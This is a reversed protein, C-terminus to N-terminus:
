IESVLKPSVSVHEAYQAQALKAYFYHQPGDLPMLGRRYFSTWSGRFHLERHPQLPTSCGTDASLPPCCLCMAQRPPPIPIARHLCLPFVPAPPCLDPPHPRTPVTGFRLDPLLLSPHPNWVSNPLEPTHSTSLPMVHLCFAPVARVQPVSITLSPPGLHQCPSTM